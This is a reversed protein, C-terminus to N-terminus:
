WIYVGASAILMAPKRGYRDSWAGLLLASLVPVVSKIIVIVMTVNAALPQVQTEIMARRSSNSDTNLLQCDGRDFGEVLCTQLIIHNALVVEAAPFTPCFSNFHHTRYCQM